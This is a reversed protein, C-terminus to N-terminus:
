SRDSRGRRWQRWRRGLPARADLEEAVIQRVEHRITEDIRESLSRIIRREVHALYLPLGVGNERVWAALERDRVVLDDREHEHLLGLTSNAEADTADPRQVWFALPEGGLFAVPLRPVIRLYLDWDEVADLTEDYWGVEDHVARRYLFSIPVARNIELLEILSIRQMDGWFPVRDTERWTSNIRREYVISTATMVGAADPDADLRAVTRALFEPHWRDDDDHLVVLDGDAARIGVNAARCRGRPADTRVLRVRPMRSDEAIEALIAGSDGDDVVVVEFDAYTQASIDALARRVFEPRNRTRVVVSV